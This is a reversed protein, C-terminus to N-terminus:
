KGNPDWDSIDHKPELPLLPAKPAPQPQPKQPPPPLPPEAGLLSDVEVAPTSPKPAPEAAVPTKPEPKKESAAIPAPEPPAKAPEPASESARHAGRRVVPETPKSVEDKESKSPPTKPEPKKKSAGKRATAPAAPAESHGESTRSAGDRSDSESALASSISDLVDDSTEADAAPAQHPEAPSPSPKPTPTSELGLKKREQLAFHRERCKDYRSKCNQLCTGLKSYTRSSGGFETTCDERCDFQEEKCGLPVGSEQAASPGAFLTLLLLPLARMLM